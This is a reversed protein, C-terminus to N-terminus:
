QRGQRTARRQRRTTGNMKFYCRGGETSARPGEAAASEDSHSMRYGLLRRSNVLNTMYKCFINWFNHFYAYCLERLMMGLSLHINLTSYYKYFLRPKCDTIRCKGLQIITPTDARNLVNEQCKELGLFVRVGM